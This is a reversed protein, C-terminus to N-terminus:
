AENAAGEPAVFHNVKPATGQQYQAVAAGIDRDAMTVREHQRMHQLWSDVLFTELWRGQESVDEFVSWAYAGDRKRTVALRYIADLFARRDAAKIRYETTVLIPGRAGDLPDAVVPAPWHRSPALDLAGVAQLKWPILLAIAAVCGVAVALLTTLVGVKSALQGWVFSGVTLTGFMTTAYAALGRGRVWSPLALQASLNLTSLVAIWSVGAVFSAVYGSWPERALAFGVTALATGLSGLVVIQNPGCRAKLQPLFFAGSLAGVGIAGLLLGYIEPGGSIRSRAVLPLLAWYASAFFFFGAARVLTARLQPNFRTHRLGTWIANTLSEPPLPHHVSARPRWWILALVVAINSAANLWFPSSLGWLAITAGALAPGIARSINIGVSNLAVASSLDDRSVLQPVIGQWAPYGAATILSSFFTFALLLNPSVHGISMWAAFGFTLATGAIEMALLLKKRDLIDALAGAPLGFLFMPLATAVQVMAILRPESSLSTMLWGSAASQMWVGVNSILTGTWIVAFAKTKFPELPARTSAAVGPGSPTTQLLSTPSAGRVPLGPKLKGFPTARM